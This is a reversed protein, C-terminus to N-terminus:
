SYPTHIGVALPYRKFAECLNTVRKLIEYKIRPWHKVATIVMLLMM